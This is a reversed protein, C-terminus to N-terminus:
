KRYKDVVRKLDVQLSLLMSLDGKEWLEVFLKQYEKSLVEEGIEYLYQIDHLIQSITDSRIHFLKQADRIEERIEYMEQDLLYSAEASNKLRRHIDVPIDYKYKYNLSHEITAWFNMAMTRIQIEAIVEKTGLAYQIPYRIIMHYSRYGSEKKNKIYDKEQLIILDKGNRKRILEVVKHIDDVFQCIIRIGAIDEIKEEIEELAINNKKIKELISSITKVRGQVYEIPSYEELAWFQKKLTEFKLVLEDVAQEYPIFFNKWDKVEM